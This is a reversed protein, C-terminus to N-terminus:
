APQVRMSVDKSPASHTISGLSVRDVHRAFAAVNEVTIGGSAEVVVSPDLRRVLEVADELGELGFNDLLVGDARSRAVAAAQEVSEAEVMLFAGPAHKRAAEVAEEVSVFALHNEKVLVADELGERHVGAGVARVAKHELGRLGPTTKRTALVECSADVERVADLARWAASAVGSLHSVLNCATREGALLARAPGEGQLLREGAQVRSGEEVLAEASAGVAELVGVAAEVGAVSLAERAELVARGGSGEPIVSVSTVDEDARDEELWADVGLAPM